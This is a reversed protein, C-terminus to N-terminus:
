SGDVDGHGWASVEWQRETVGAKNLGEDVEFIPIRANTNVIEFDDSDDDSDEDDLWVGTYLDRAEVAAKL